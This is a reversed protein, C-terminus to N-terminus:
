GTNAGTTPSPNSSFCVVPRSPSGRRNRGVAGLDWGSFALAGPVAAASLHGDLYKSKWGGQFSCPTTLLVLPKQDDRPERHPWAFPKALREITTQRGEGGLSLTGVDDLIAVNEGAGPLEIEAYLFINQKLALFGRGFIQSEEAVLRDPSIGIGTRYDIGFLEDPPVIKDTTVLDGRLFDALGPPTLYGTAPKTASLHKLWLPRLGAKDPPPDWGPLQNIRLPALRHLANSRQDKEGQLIAPAPVLVEISDPETRRRALWPGRISLQGIWQHQKPCAREVAEVFTPAGKMKAFDCAVGRLLATRIAGALTQPLPLGSM